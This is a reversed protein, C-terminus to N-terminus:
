VQIPVITPKAAAIATPSNKKLPVSFIGNCRNKAAVVTIKHSTVACSAIVPICSSLSDRQTGELLCSIATMPGITLLSIKKKTKIKPAAIKSIKRSHSVADCAFVAASIAALSASFRKSAACCRRCLFQIIAAAEAHRATINTGVGCKELQTPLDSEGEGGLAAAM